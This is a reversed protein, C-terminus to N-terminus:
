RSWHRIHWSWYMLFLSVGKLMWRLLWLFSALDYAEIKDHLWKLSCFWLKWGYASNVKISCILFCVVGLSVLVSKFHLSCKQTKFSFVKYGSPNFWDNIKFLFIVIVMTCLISGQFLRQIFHMPLEITNVLLNGKEM